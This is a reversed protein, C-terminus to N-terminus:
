SATALLAGWNFGAGFATFVVHDGPALTHERMWEEAAILMSASSTNGFKHINSYFREIAVGLAQAVRDILNRNAQHMLFVKVEAAALRNRALIDAIVAPVKRSAQLIVTRGDMRLPQDRELCLADEFSGDSALLSDEVRLPGATPHVLCAGAGDGFLVAVGRERPERAVVGSMKESGIVLIPGLSAALRSALGIGFLGGASALPLDLAPVGAAGLMEAARAAPGPFQREATGSAVMVMGLDAAAVDARALCDQGALAAMRAVTMEPEAFRREEIGSVSRVWDATTEVWSAAEENAVVRDPLWSGFASLFAM